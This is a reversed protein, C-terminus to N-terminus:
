FHVSLLVAEPDLRTRESVGSWSQNSEGWKLYDGEGTRKPLREPVLASIIPMGLIGQGLSADTKSDSAGRFGDVLPGSVRVNRTGPAVRPYMEEILADWKSDTWTTRVSLPDSELNQEQTRVTIHQPQMAQFLLNSGQYDNSLPPANTVAPMNQAPALLPFTALCVLVSLPRKMIEREANVSQGLAAKDVLSKRFDKSLDQEPQSLGL